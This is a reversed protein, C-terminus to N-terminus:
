VCKLVSEIPPSFISINRLLRLVSIAKSQFKFLVFLMLVPVKINLLLQLISKSIFWGRSRLNQHIKDFFIRSSGCSDIM